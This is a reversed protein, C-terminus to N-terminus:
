LGENKVNNGKPQEKQGEPKSPATPPTIGVKELLGEYEGASSKTVMIIKNKRHYSKIIIFDSVPRNADKAIKNIKDKDSQNLRSWDSAGDIYETDSEKLANNVAEKTEETSYQKSGDTRQAVAGGTQNEWDQQQPTKPIVTQNSTTYVIDDPDEVPYFNNGNKICIHENGDQDVVKYIDKKTITDKGIFTSKTEDKPTVTTTTAKAGKKGTAIQMALSQDYEYQGTDKNYRFGRTLMEVNRDALNDNRKQVDNSATGINM